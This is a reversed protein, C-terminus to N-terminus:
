NTRVIARIASFDGAPNLQLGSLSRQSVVVNTRNWLPILPADEAIM